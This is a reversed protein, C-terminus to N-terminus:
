IWYEVVHFVVYGCHIQHFVIKLLDGCVRIETINIYLMQQESSKKKGSLTGVIHEIIGKREKGKIANKTNTHLGNWDNTMYM